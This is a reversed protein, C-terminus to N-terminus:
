IEDGGLMQNSFLLYCEHHLTRRAIKVEKKKKRTYCTKNIQKRYRTSKANCVFYYKVINERSFCVDRVYLSTWLPRLRTKPKEAVYLEVTALSWLCSPRIFSVSTPEFYSITVTRWPKSVYGVAGRVRDGRYTVRAHAYRDPRHIRSRFRQRRRVLRNESTRRACISVTFFSSSFFFCSFIRRRRPVAKRRYTRAAAISRTRNYKPLFDILGHDYRPTRERSAASTNDGHKRREPFDPEPFVCLM